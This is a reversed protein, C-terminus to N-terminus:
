EPPELTLMAGYIDLRPSRGLLVAVVAAVSGIADQKNFLLSVLKHRISPHRIDIGSRRLRERRGDDAHFQNGYIWDMLMAEQDIQADNIVLVTSLHDPHNHFAAFQDKMLEVLRLDSFQKRLIACVNVFSAREQQLIFLRLRQFLIDLEDRSPLDATIEAQGDKVRIMLECPVGDRVPSSTVLEEYQDLYRRLTEAHKDTLEGPLVAVDGEGDDLLLTYRVSMFVLITERM